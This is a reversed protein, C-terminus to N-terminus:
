KVLVKVNESGTRVVYVGSSLNASACKRGSMDYIESGEPAIIRGGAVLIESGDVAVEGIGSTDASYDFTVVGDESERINYIGFKPAQRNSYWLAAPQTSANFSTNGTTGPFPDGAEDARLESNWINDAAILRVHEYGSAAANVTNRKWLRSDYHCYSIVLGHGPIGADWGSQQRNELTYYENTNDPNVLFVAEHTDGFPNLTVNAASGELVLPEIWGLTFKDMATYGSPTRQDDNYTGVDMIDYHAMGYGGQKSTDYIDALGLIHSFEHCITGIGDLNEGSGGKLECACAAVNLNLGDFYDFVYDELYQMAPWVTDYSGGQAQGHGAFVVFLFDVFGDDNIDYKSFDLGLKDAELAADRFLNNIDNTMGYHARDYPLTIVQDFVDFRPTFKGDSQATFYDIVSGSAAEDSYGPENCIRDYREISTKPSFKVDQFECMLVLGTVTGTTPFKQTIVAPSVKRGGGKEEREAALARLLSERVHAPTAEGTIEGAGVVKGETTLVCPRLQGSSDHMLMEGASTEYYHSHEDGVIRAVVVTGDPQVMRHYGPLAPSALLGQIGLAACAAVSMIRKKM